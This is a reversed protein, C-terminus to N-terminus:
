LDVRAVHIMKGKPGKERGTFYIADQTFMAPFSGMPYWDKGDLQLANSMTAAASNIRVVQSQLFVENLKTVTTTTITTVVGAGYSKFSNTEFQAETAFEVPRQNAVLILDDGKIMTQYTWMGTEGEKGMMPILHLARFTGTASLQLAYAQTPSNGILLVDGNPMTIVEKFDSRPIFWDLKAKQGAPVVLGEELADEGIYTNFLVKGDQIHTVQMGTMKTYDLGRYWGDFGDKGKGVIFSSAGDNLIAFDGWMLKSIFSVSDVLKRDDSFRMYTFHDKKDKWYLHKLSALTTPGNLPAFLSCLDGGQGLGSTVTLATYPLLYIDYPINDLDNGNMTLVAERNAAFEQDKSLSVKETIVGAALMDADAPMTLPNGYKQLDRYFGNSTALADYDSLSKFGGPTIRWIDGAKPKVAEEEVFEMGTYIEKFYNKQIHGKWLKMGGGFARGARLWKGNGETVKDVRSRPMFWPLQKEADGAGIFNEGIQAEGGGGIDLVYEEVQAGDDKTSSVYLVTAKDGNIFTGGYRAERANKSLEVSTSKSITLEQAVLTAAPFLAFLSLILTPTRM